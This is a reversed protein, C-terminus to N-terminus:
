SLGAGGRPLAAPANKLDRAVSHPPAARRMAVAKGVAAGPAKIARHGSVWKDALFEGSQADGSSLEGRFIKLPERFAAVEGLNLAPPM